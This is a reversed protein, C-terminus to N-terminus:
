LCRCRPADYSTRSVPFGRPFQITATFSLLEIACRYVDLRQLSLV